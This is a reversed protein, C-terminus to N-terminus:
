FPTKLNKWFMKYFEKPLGDMGPSKNNKTEPVAKACEQISPFRDCFEKENESINHIDILDLYNNM